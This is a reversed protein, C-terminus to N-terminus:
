FEPCPHFQIFVCSTVANCILGLDELLRRRHRNGRPDPAATGLRNARIAADEDNVLVDDFFHDVPARLRSLAEMASRFDETAVATSAEASATTIAAFLAKEADLRFLNESVGDAIVTGKKEEAALIQTARKTGALLNKGDEETIFATM